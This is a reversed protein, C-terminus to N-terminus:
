NFVLGTKVFNAMFENLHGEIQEDEADFKYDDPAPNRFVYPHDSDHFPRHLWVEPPFWRANAYKNMYAFLMTTPTTANANQTGNIAAATAAKARAEVEWVFPVIFQLDAM